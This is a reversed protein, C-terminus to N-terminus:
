TDSVHVTAVVVRGEHVLACSVPGDESVVFVVSGPNKETFYFAARHRAGRIHAAYPTTKKLALDHARVIECHDGSELVVGAGYIALKPGGVVAGDIASMRAVDEIASDLRERADDAARRAQARALSSRKEDAEAFSVDIRKNSADSIRASLISTDVRRVRMARLVSEAPAKPYLALIGGSGTGRVRRILDRLASESFSYFHSGSGKEGVIAGVADRIPGDEGLVDLAPSLRQGAEFRLIEQFAREFVIVGPRPATIRVVDGGDTNKRRRAIGDIRLRNVTGRIVVVQRGYELGRSLKALSAVDLETAVLPTVDWALEPEDGLDGSQDRVKALGAAGEPHFVVAVRAMSGEVTIMSAFFVTDVLATLLRRGRAEVGVEKFVTSLLERPYKLGM